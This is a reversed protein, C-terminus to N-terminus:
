ERLWKELFFLATPGLASAMSSLPPSSEGGDGGRKSATSPETSLRAPRAEESKKKARDRVTDFVLWAGIAMLFVPWLDILWDLDIPGFYNDYCLAFGGILFMIIGVM